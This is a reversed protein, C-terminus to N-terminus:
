VRSRPPPAVMGSLKVHNSCKFFDILTWVVKEFKHDLCNKRNKGRPKRERVRERNVIRNGRRMIRAEIHGGGLVSLMAEGGTPIHLVEFCWATISWQNSYAVQSM